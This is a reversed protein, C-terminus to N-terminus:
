VDSSGIDSEMEFLKNKPGLYWTDSLKHDKLHSFVSRAYVQSRLLLTFLYIFSHVAVAAVGVVASTEYGHVRKSRLIGARMRGM